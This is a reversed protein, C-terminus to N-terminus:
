EADYPAREERLTLARESPLMALILRTIESQLQMRPLATAEGLVHRAKYYHDRAERSSGLSYEYFRCRDKGTGRSYGEALNSSVSSLARFLQDSTSFTRRDRALATIDAWGVESAYLALRYVRMKWLADKRICEPVTTEWEEFAM